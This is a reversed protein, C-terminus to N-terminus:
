EPLDGKMEDQLLQKISELVVTNHQIVDTMAKIEDRHQDTQYKIYWGLGVCAVIPFGVSGILTMIQQIDM